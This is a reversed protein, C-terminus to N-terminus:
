FPWDDMDEQKRVAMGGPFCQSLWAPFDEQSKKRTKSVKPARRDGLFSVIIWVGTQLFVLHEISLLRGTNGPRSRGL